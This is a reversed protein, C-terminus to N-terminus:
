RKRCEECRAPLLKATRPVDFLGFCDKCALIYWLPHDGMVRDGHTDLREPTMAAWEEILYVDPM